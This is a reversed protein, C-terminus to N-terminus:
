TDKTFPSTILIAKNLCQWLKKEKQKYNDIDEDKLQATTKM